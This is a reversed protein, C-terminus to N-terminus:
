VNVGHDRATIALFAAYLSKAEEPSPGETSPTTGKTAPDAIAELLSALRDRLRTFAAAHKKGLSRGDAARKTMLRDARELFEELVALTDYSHADFTRGAPQGSANKVGTIECKDNMPCFTTSVEVPRAETILRAGNGSRVLDQETPRYGVGDWFAKVEEPSDLWERRVVFHGVSLRKVVGDKLLTRQDKGAVTDSIKGTIVLGQKPDISADTVKGTTVQHEDRIVGNSKFADLHKDYANPHIIDWGGDINNFAAGLGSFESGDDSATKVEFAFSKTELKPM